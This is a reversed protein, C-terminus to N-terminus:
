FGQGPKSEEWVRSTFLGFEGRFKKLNQLWSETQTRKEVLKYEFKNNIHLKQSDHGKIPFGRNVWVSGPSVINRM